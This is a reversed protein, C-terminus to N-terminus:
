IDAIEKGGVVGNRGIDDAVLEHVCPIASQSCLPFEDKGVAGGDNLRVAEIQLEVVSMGLLGDLVPLGLPRLHVVSFGGRM